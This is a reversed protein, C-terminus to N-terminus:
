DVQTAQMAEDFANINIFKDVQNFFEGPEDRRAIVDIFGYVEKGAIRQLVELVTEGTQFELGLAKAMFNETLRYLADPTTWFKTSIKKKSLDIGDLGATDVDSSPELVVFHVQCFPTKKENSQTGLEYPDAANVAIKYTGKPLVPPAKVDEAASHLLQSFDTSEATTM